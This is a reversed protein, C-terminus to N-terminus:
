FVQRASSGKLECTDEVAAPIFVRPPSMARLTRRGTHFRYAGGSETAQHEQATRVGRQYQRAALPTIGKRFGPKVRGSDGLLRAGERRPFQLLFGRRGDTTDYQFKTGHNTKHPEREHEEFQLELTTAPVGRSGAAHIV